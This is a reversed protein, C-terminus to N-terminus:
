KEVLIEDQSVLTQWNEWHMCGSHEARCNERQQWQIYTHKFLIGHMWFCRSKLSFDTTAISLIINNNMLNCDGELLLNLTQKVLILATATSSIFIHNIIFIVWTHTHIHPLLLSNPFTSCPVSLTSCNASGRQGGWEWPIRALKNAGAILLFSHLAKKLIDQIEELITAVLWM